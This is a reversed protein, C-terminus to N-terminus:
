PRKQVLLFTGGSGLVFMGIAVAAVLVWSTGEGGTDISVPAASPEAGDNGLVDEKLVERGPSAPQSPDFTFSLDGGAADGDDASLTKWRVTYKGPALSSPLAVTLLKRDNNAIVAAITTVENGAADFVDIDNAGDRRAMDQTMTIEVQQPATTLIAGDGPKIRAPEAHAFAVAVIALALLPAASVVLFRKM